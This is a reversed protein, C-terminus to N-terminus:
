RSLVEEIEDWDAATWLYWEVPRGINLLADRWRAQERELKGGVKKLEAFVIRHGRVLTLDPWGKSYSRRSDSIHMVKWGVVGAYQMVHLTFAKEPVLAAADMMTM